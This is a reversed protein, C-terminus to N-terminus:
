STRRAQCTLSASTSAFATAPIIATPMSPSPAIHPTKRGSQATTTHRWTSISATEDLFFSCLSIMSTVAAALCWNRRSTHGPPFHRRPLGDGMGRDNIPLVRYASGATPDPGPSCTVDCIPAIQAHLVVPCALISIMTLLVCARLPFSSRPFKRSARSQYFHGVAFLIDRIIEM